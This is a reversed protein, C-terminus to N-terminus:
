EAAEAIDQPDDALDEVQLLDEFAKRGEAWADVQGYIWTGCKMNCVRLIVEIEYSTFSQEGGLECRLSLKFRAAKEKADPIPESPYMGIAAEAIMLGMTMPRNLGGHTMPTVKDPMMILQDLNRKM